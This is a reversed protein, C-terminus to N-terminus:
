DSAFEESEGLKEHYNVSLGLKPLTVPLTGLVIVDGAYVGVLTVKGNIENRVDDCFITYGFPTSRRIENM